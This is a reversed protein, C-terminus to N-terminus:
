WAKLEESQGFTPTAGSVPIPWLELDLPRPNSRSGHGLRLDLDLLQPNSRSGHGLRLDLDLPWPNSRSSSGLRLDLDLPWSCILDLAM